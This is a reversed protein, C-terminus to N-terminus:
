AILEERARRPPPELKRRSFGLRLLLQPHGVDPVLAQLRRRLEPLEIAQNHFSASVDSDEARLLVHALAQGAALWGEPGDGRTGLVAIAPAQELTHRDKRAAVSGWDVARVLVPVIRGAWRPAGLATAPIGDAARRGGRVWAALERRV